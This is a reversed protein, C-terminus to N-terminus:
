EYWYAMRRDIAPIPHRDTEPPPAVAGDVIRYRIGAEDLRRRLSQFRGFVIQVNGDAARMQQLSARVSQSYQHHFFVSSGAVLVINITALGAILWATLRGVRDSATWAAAAIALPFLWAQPAYRAWWGEPHLFISALAILGIIWLPAAGPRTRLTLVGRVLAAAAVLVLAGFLPGFGGIRVDYHQFSALEAADVSGPMKRRTPPPPYSGDTRAFTTTVFRSLRNADAIDAPLNNQMMDPRIGTADAVPIFANGHELVNRGYSAYGLGFAGFLTVSGCFVAARVAAAAGRRVAVAAVWTLLIVLGYLLGTYKFNMALCLAAAAVLRPAWRREVVSLAVAGAAILLCSALMGDVYFSDLQYLAVPNAAACAAIAIAWARPLPTLRRLCVLTQCFAAAMLVFGFLKAPEIRDFASLVSAAILWAAKPYHQLWVAASDEGAIVISDRVPNWGAVLRLVAEQHYWLGDFSGDFMSAAVYWGFGLIALGAAAAAFRGRRTRAILAVALAAAVSAPVFPWADPQAGVALLLMSALAITFPFVVLGAATAELTAHEATSTM